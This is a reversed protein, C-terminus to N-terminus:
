SRSPRMEPKSRFFSLHFHDLFSLSFVLRVMRHSGAIEHPTGQSLLGETFACFERFELSASEAENREKVTTKRVEDIQQKLDHRRQEVTAVVSDCVQDIEKQQLATTRM